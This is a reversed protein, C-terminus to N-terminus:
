RVSRDHAADRSFIFGRPSRGAQTRALHVFESATQESAADSVLADLCTRVLGNLTTHRRAAYERSRRALREDIALTVNM